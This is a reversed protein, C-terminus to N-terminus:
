LGLVSEVELFLPWVAGGTNGLMTLVISPGPYVASRMAVGPDSGEVFVKRIAQDPLDIWVGYGYHTYPSNLATAIHPELLAETTGVALLESGTLARWFRALDPATTYAGGDPGGIVPVAFVNTRWSGDDDKIYARATREPLRDAPFYGSDDMGAPEFVTERVVDPFPKGAVCEAVLGLLIYGGDNYEFRDGPPFKMPRDRFLPLFDKPGRMRYVPVDRWLAEYDPDMDEEFYSTIGSSHTLLHRVTIEPSFHPFAEDVCETLRTDLSVMGLEVLRCVAVATFIKCGSATQFRTDIRNPVSESRVAPGYADEFLVENGHTLCVVGSFPEPDTRSEICAALAKPDLKM